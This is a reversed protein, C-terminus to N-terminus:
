DDAADSTYLLCVKQYNEETIGEKLQIWNRMLIRDVTKNPVTKAFTSTRENEHMFSPRYGSNERLRNDLSQVELCNIARTIAVEIRRDLDKTKVVVGYMEGSKKIITRLEQKAQEPSIKGRQELIGLALRADSEEPSIPTTNIGISM